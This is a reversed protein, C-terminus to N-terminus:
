ILLVNDLFLSSVSMRTIEIRVPPTLWGLYMKHFYSITILDFNCLIFYIPRYQLSDRLELAFLYCLTLNLVLVSDWWNFYNVLQQNLCCLAGQRCGYMENLGKM